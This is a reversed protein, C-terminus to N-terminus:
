RMIKTTYKLSVFDEYTLASLDADPVDAFACSSVLLPAVLMSGMKKMLSCCGELNNITHSFLIHAYIIRYVDKYYLVGYYFLFKM